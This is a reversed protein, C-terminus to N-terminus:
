GRRQVLELVQDLTGQISNFRADISEFRADHGDLKAEISVLQNTHQKQITVIDTLIVYADHVDNEVRRVRKEISGSTTM